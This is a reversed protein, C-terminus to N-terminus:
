WLKENWFTKLCQPCEKPKRKKLSKDNEELHQSSNLDTVNENGSNDSLISSKMVCKHEKAGTTHIQFFIM